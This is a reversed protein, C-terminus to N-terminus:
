SGFSSQSGNSGCDKDRDDTRVYVVLENHGENGSVGYAGRIEEVEHQFRMEEMFGEWRLEGVKEGM